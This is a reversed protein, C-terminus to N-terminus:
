THKGVGVPNQKFYTSLCKLCHIFTDHLLFTPNWTPYTRFIITLPNGHTVWGPIIYLIYKYM